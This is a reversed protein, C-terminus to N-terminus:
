ALFGIVRLVYNTLFYNTPSTTRRFIGTETRTGLGTVVYTDQGSNTNAKKRWRVEAQYV